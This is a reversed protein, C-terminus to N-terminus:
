FKLFAYGKLQYMTVTTLMSTGIEVGEALKKPDVQRAILSQGCVVIKAGGDQLAKILKLNPNDTKYKAQHAENNMLSYTSMAHVALIVHIKERPVGAIAHLNMLRAVNILSPNYEDPTDSGTNVDIVIHYELNPDPVNTAEPIEFIGGFEKVLPNQRNQSIGLIPMLVILLTARIMIWHVM